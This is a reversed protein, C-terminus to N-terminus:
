IDFDVNEQALAGAGASTPPMTVQEAAMGAGWHLPVRIFRGAVVAAALLLLLVTIIIQLWSWLSLMTTRWGITAVLRRADAESMGLRTQIQRAVEDGGREVYMSAMDRPQWQRVIDNARDINLLAAQPGWLPLDQYVSALARDRSLYPVSDRVNSAAVFAILGILAVLPIVVALSYWHAQRRVALAGAGLGLAATLLAALGFLSIVARVNTKLALLAWFLAFMLTGTTALLPVTNKAGSLRSVVPASFATSMLERIAVHGVRTAAEIGAFLLLAQLVFMFRYLMPLWSKKFGPFDKFLWASGASIVTLPGSARVYDQRPETAPGGPVRMTDAQLTARLSDWDRQGAQAVREIDALPMPTMIAYFDWRWLTAISILILVALLSQALMGGFGVPLADRENKLMHSTISSSILGNFGSIAGATIVMIVYPFVKGTLVPGNGSVYATTAPLRLSPAAFAIGGALAVVGILLVYGSIAARARALLRLPLSASVFCYVAVLIIIVGRNALLGSAVPRTVLGAGLATAVTLLALGLAIAEATRGPRLWREYVSALIAAVVTVLLVYLVWANGVLVDALLAGTMALFILLALAVIGWAALGAWPGLEEAILGPLSAGRHRTSSVLVVLDHVAGGVIAAVLIWLYGPLYGFQAALAPGVLLGGGAVSSFQCGLLIWRGTPLREVGSSIDRDALGVIHTAIFSGYLRYALILTCIAALVLWLANDSRKTLVYWMSFLVIGALIIWLSREEKDEM